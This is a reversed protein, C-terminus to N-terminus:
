LLVTDGIVHGIDAVIITGAARGGLRRRLLNGGGILMVHHRGGRLLLIQLCRRLVRRREVVILAMWGDRSRRVRRLEAPGANNRMRALWDSSDRRLATEQM